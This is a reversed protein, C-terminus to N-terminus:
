SLDATKCYDGTAEFQLTTHNIAFKEHLMEELKERLGSVRSLLQDDVSIHAEFHTDSESVAWLHVHHVDAIGNQQRIARKIEEMNLETPAALMFMGLSHWLIQMSEKLVYLGILVTLLPDIWYIGYFMIALGGLIVGISSIADSFLHLYAARLNMSEKSGRH